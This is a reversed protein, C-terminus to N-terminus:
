PYRLWNEHGPHITRHITPPSRQTLLSPTIRVVRKFSESITILASRISTMSAVGSVTIVKISTVVGPAVENELGAYLSETNERIVVLDTAGYGTELGPVTKM